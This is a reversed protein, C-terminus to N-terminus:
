TSVTHLIWLVPRISSWFNCRHLFISGISRFATFTVPLIKSSDWTRIKLYLPRQCRRNKPVGSVCRKVYTLSIQCIVLLGSGCKTGPHVGAGSPIFFPPNSKFFFRAVIFSAKSSSCFRYKVYALYTIAM